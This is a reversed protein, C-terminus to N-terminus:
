DAGEGDDSGLVSLTHYPLEAENFMRRRRASHAWNLVFQRLHTNMSGLVLINHNAAAREIEQRVQYWVPYAVVLVRVFGESFLTLAESITGLRDDLLDESRLWVVTHDTASLHRVARLAEEESVTIFITGSVTETQYLDELQTLVDSFSEATSASMKSSM